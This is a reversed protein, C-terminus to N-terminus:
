ARGQGAAARLAASRLREEEEAATRLEDRVQELAAIAEEKMETGVHHHSFKAWTFLDTLRRISRRDVDLGPLIRALLEDPTEAAKRPLGHAALVRELRAYAAIVARRPDTEARLDDLSDDLATALADAIREAYRDRAEARSRRASLYFAVGALVALGIVVFVPIWTFAADYTSGSGSDSPTTPVRGPFGQEGFEGPRGEFQRERLRSFGLALVLMLLGFAIFSLRRYRKVAAYERAIEKRQALGYIVIAAAPILSILALTLITDLLSEAPARGENSGSPISGTAAIAVVGVLALIGLAPLAARALQPYRSM